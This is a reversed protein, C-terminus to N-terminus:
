KGSVSLIYSLCPEQQPNKSTVIMICHVRCESQAYVHSPTTVLGGGSDQRMGSHRDEEMTQHWSGAREGEQCAPDEPKWSPVGKGLIWM